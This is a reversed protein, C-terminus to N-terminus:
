RFRPALPYEQPIRVNYNKYTQSTWSPVLSIYVSANSDMFRLAVYDELLSDTSPSEGYLRQSQAPLLRHAVTIGSPYGFARLTSGGSTDFEQWM